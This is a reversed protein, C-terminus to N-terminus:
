RTERAYELWLNSKSRRCTHKTVNTTLTLTALLMADHDICFCIRIRVVNKCEEQAVMVLSTCLIHTSTNTQYVDGNPKHSSNSACALDVRNTLKTIKKVYEECMSQTVRNARSSRVPVEIAYDPRSCEHSPSECPRCITEDGDAALEM